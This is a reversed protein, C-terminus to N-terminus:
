QLPSGCKGCFKHKVACKRGYNTCFNNKEFETVPNSQGLEKLVYPPPVSSIIQLQQIVFGPPWVMENELTFIISFGLPPGIELPQNRSYIRRGLGPTIHVTFHLRVNSIGMGRALDNFAAITKLRLLKM